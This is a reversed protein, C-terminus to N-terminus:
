KERRNFRIRSYPRWEGTKLPGANADWFVVKGKDNVRLIDFVGNQEVIYGEIPKGLNDLRETVGYATPTLGTTEEIEQVPLSDFRPTIGTLFYEDSEKAGTLGLNQEWVQLTPDVSIAASRISRILSQMEAIKEKDIKDFDGNTEDVIRDLAQQGVIDAMKDVMADPKQQLLEQGEPTEAWEKTQAMADANQVPTISGEKQLSDGMAGATEWNPNEWFSIKDKHLTRADGGTLLGAGVQEILWDHYQGPTETARLRRELAEAYVPGNSVDPGRLKDDKMANLDKMWRRRDKGEMGSNAIEQAVDWFGAVEGEESYPVGLDYSTLMRELKDEAPKLLNEEYEYKDQAQRDQLKQRVVDRVGEFQDESLFGGVDESRAVELAAYAADYGDRDAIASIGRTLNTEITTSIDDFMQGAIEARDWVGSVIGENYLRVMEGVDGRNKAGEISIGLDSMSNRKIRNGYELALADNWAPAQTALWTEYRNRARGKLQQGIEFTNQMLEQQRLKFLDSDSRRHFPSGIFGADVMREAEPEPEQARRQEQDFLVQANAKAVEFDGTSKQEILADIDQGLNALSGVLNTAQSIARTTGAIQAAKIRETLGVDVDRRQPRVVGPDPFIQQRTPSIKAM